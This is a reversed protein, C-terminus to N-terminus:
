KALIQSKFEIYDDTDWDASCAVFNKNEVEVLKRIIQLAILHLQKSLENRALMQLIASVISYFTLNEFSEMTYQNSSLVIDKVRLEINTIWLVLEDFELEVM